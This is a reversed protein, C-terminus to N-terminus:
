NPTFSASFFFSLTALLRNVAFLDVLVFPFSIYLLYPRFLLFLVGLDLLLTASNQSQSATLLRTTEATYIHMTRTITEGGVASGFYNDYRIKNIKLKKKTAGEKKHSPPTSSQAGKFVTLNMDKSNPLPIDFFSFPIAFNIVSLLLCSTVM